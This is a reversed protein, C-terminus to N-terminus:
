KPQEPQQQEAQLKQLEETVEVLAQLLTRSVASNHVSNADLGLKDLIEQETLVPM